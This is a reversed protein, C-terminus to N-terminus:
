FVVLQTRFKEMLCIMTLGRTTGKALKQRFFSMPVVPSSVQYCFLALQGTVTPLDSPYEGPPERREV